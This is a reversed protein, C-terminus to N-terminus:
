GMTLTQLLSKYQATAGINLNIIGAFLGAPVLVLAIILILITKKM